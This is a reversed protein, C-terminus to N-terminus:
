TARVRDAPWPWGNVVLQGQKWRLECTNPQLFREDTPSYRGTLFHMTQNSSGIWRRRTESQEKVYRGDVLLDATQLLAHIAPSRQAELERLTYGSFIMVSLGGQKARQAVWSLPGPQEFPEGGLLSIGEIGPQAIIQAALTEVSVTDGRQPAFMEPNCCGPCRLSCGQVWIAFRRGPGEAETDAVYQAVRLQM